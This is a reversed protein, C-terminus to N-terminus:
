VDIKFVVKEVPAPTDVCIGPKHLDEPYFVALMGAKLYLQNAHVTGTERYFICDNEPIDEEVEVGDLSVLVDMREAGSRIFQIDIRKEHAEFRCAEFPRSDYSQVMHYMCDSDQTRGEAETDVLGEALMKLAADLRKDMGLYAPIDKKHLVIM